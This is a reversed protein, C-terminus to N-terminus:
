PSPSGSADNPGPSPAEPEVKLELRADITPITEVWDPWVSLEVDGVEGLISRAEELPRGKVRERLAHADLVRVQAATATVPFSVNGGQVIAEGIDIHISSEVLRHDSAVVDRMGSEAITAVPTTDVAIVTGTSSLGLEFTPVEDGVLTLPDASPVPEPITRTGLFLTLGDPTRSPDALIAEFDTGLQLTLQDIAADIDAQGIRPFETRSGGTTAAPNTVTTLDSNEGPPVVKITHALVNGGPGQRLADVRVSASSPIVTLSPFAVRAPALTVANRTSFQIGGETSVVSGRPITNSSGTNYSRLTVSGTAATQEVRKDTASFTDSASLPFSLREAPVVRAGVDAEEAAPDARITLSVPGIAQERATVTISASPLLLWAGVALVVAALAGVGAAVLANPREIAALRRRLDALTISPAAATTAPAPRTVPLTLVETPAVDNPGGDSSLEAATTAVPVAMPPARRGPKPPAGEAPAPPADLATEYEAVSGFVALGASAALARTAADGAVISLRRDRTQAERALLRFNIRSTALRSGYPVVLAVRGEEGSRIRAAASTIEDDVDLYVIATM